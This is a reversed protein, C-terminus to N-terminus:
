DMGRRFGVKYPIVEALKRDTYVEVFTDYLYPNHNDWPTVKKVDATLAGALM